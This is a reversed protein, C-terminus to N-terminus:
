RKSVKLANSWYWCNVKKTLKILFKDPCMKIHGPSQEHCTVNGICGDNSM